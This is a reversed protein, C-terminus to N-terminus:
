LYNKYSHDQQALENMEKCDEETWGIALQSERYIPDRLFRDHIGTFREGASDVKKCCRKFANWAQHYATQVESKGRRAGHNPSKKIVYAPFSLTDMRKRNLTSRYENFILCQGCTCYAIGQNWYLLCHPCQVKPTTECLEFLEVNGLELIMKKSNESFPNYVNNQQLDAHLAARHPHTEIRNVLEQVRLHEAEKVIEHSLGPIRFDIKLEEDQRDTVPQGTGTQGSEVRRPTLMCNGTVEHESTVPDGTSTRSMEVHREQKLPEQDASTRKLSKEGRTVNTQSSPVQTNSKQKTRQIDNSSRAVDSDLETIWTDKYSITPTPRPSVYPKRFINEGSRRWIAQPICYAPLTDYLIIANSRTQYFKLGKRQALQIDM